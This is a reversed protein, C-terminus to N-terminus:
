LNNVAAGTAYVHGGTATQAGTADAHYGVNVDGPVAYYHTYDGIKWGPYAYWNSPTTSAEAASMVTDNIDYYGNFNIDGDAYGKVSTKNGDGFSTTDARDTTKPVDVTSVSSVEQLAGTGGVQVRFSFEKGHLRRYAM